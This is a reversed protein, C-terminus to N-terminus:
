SPTTTGVVRAMDQEAAEMALRLVREVGQIEAILRGRAQEHGREAARLAGQAQEANARDLLTSAAPGKYRDARARAAALDAAASREEKWKAEAAFLTNCADYVARGLREHDGFQIPLAYTVRMKKYQQGVGQIRANFEDYMAGGTLLDRANRTELLLAHWHRRLEEGLRTRERHLQAAEARLRDPNALIAEVNAREIRVKDFCVRVYDKASEVLREAQALAINEKLTTKGNPRSYARRQVADVTDVAGDVANGMDIVCRTDEAKLQALRAELSAVVFRHEASDNSDAVATANGSILILLAFVIARVTMATGGRLVNVLM